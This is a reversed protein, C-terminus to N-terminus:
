RSVIVLWYTEGLLNYGRIQTMEVTDTACRTNWVWFRRHLITMLGAERNSIMRGVHGPDTALLRLMPIRESTSQQM